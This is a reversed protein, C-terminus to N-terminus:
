HAHGTGPGKKQQPHLREQEAEAQAAAQMRAIINQWHPVRHAELVAQADVVDLAKLADMEAIRAQRSTPNSSGANVTLAFKLPESGDKTPTYFHRAALRLATDEGEGGVIAVIRPVDYNLIMLHALIQGLRSMTQELNRLAQRVSVFGSEQVAQTTQQAQRGSPHQGKSVGSLGAINEM